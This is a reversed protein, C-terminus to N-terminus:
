LLEGADAVCHAQVCRAINGACPNLVCTLPEGLCVPEPQWAGLAICSCDSCYDPVVRCDADESCAPGLALPAAEAQTESEETGQAAVMCGALLLTLGVTLSKIPSM